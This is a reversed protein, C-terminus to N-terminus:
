KGAGGLLYQPPRPDHWETMIDYILSKTSIRGYNVINKIQAFEAVSQTITRIPNIEFFEEYIKQTLGDFSCIFENGVYKENPEAILDKAQFICLSVGDGEATHMLVKNRLNQIKADKYYVSFCECKSDFECRTYQFCDCYWRFLRKKLKKNSDCVRSFRLLVGDGIIKFKKNQESM